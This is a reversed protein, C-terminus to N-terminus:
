PLKDWYLHFNTLSSHKHIIVGLVITAFNISTICHLNCIFTIM